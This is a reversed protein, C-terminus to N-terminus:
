HIETVEKRNKIKDIQYLVFGTIFSIAEAILLSFIVGDVKFIYNGIIISPILILGRTVSMIIAPVGKGKAQFIGTLLGAGSAFFSSVLQVTLIYAGISIVSEDNSFFKFDKM